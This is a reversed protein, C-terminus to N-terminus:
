AGEFTTTSCACGASPACPAGCSIRPTIRVKWRLPSAFRHTDCKAQCAQIIEADEMGNTSVGNKADRRLHTQTITLRPCVPSGGLEKCVTNHRAMDDNGTRCAVINPPPATGLRPDRSQIHTCGPAASADTTREHGSQFRLNNLPPVRARSQCRTRVGDAEVGRETIRWNPEMALSRYWHLFTEAHRGRLGPGYLM